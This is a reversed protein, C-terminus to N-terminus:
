NYRFVANKLFRAVKNGLFNCPGMVWDSFPVPGDALLWRSAECEQQSSFSGSESGVRRPDARGELTKRELSFQGV